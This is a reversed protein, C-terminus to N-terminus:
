AVEGKRERALADAFDDGRLKPAQISVKAGIGVWRQAVKQAAEIGAKDNDAFVTLKPIGGLLPFAAISGASLCAWVPSGGLAIVALGTEIGECIGIGSDPEAQSLMVVGGHCPGLMKRDVKCGEHSLETRHIAVPLGDAPSRVLGVMAPVFRQDGGEGKGFPCNPHFRLDPSESRLGRSSLYREALTGSLPRADRWIRMAADKLSSARAANDEIPRVPPIYEGINEIWRLAGAVGCKQERQILDLVGGGEGAEHDYWRGNAVDIALSGRNRYRWETDRKDKYKPDGFLAKAVSPMLEAIDRRQETM